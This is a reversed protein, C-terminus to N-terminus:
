SARRLHELRHPLGMVGDSGSVAAVFVAEMERGVRSVHFRDFSRGHHQVKGDLYRKLVYAIRDPRTDAILNGSERLIDATPGEAMTVSTIPKGAGMYDTLKGPFFPNFELGDIAKDFVGDINLLLDASRMLRLSDLYPVSGELRVHGRHLMAGHAEYDSGAYGGGYFLLEFRNAYQPYIELLRDVAKLVPAATRRVSYLTGVHMITYRDRKALESKPFFAPDFCHPVVVAKSAYREFPGTFMLRRQYDNNCIVVDAHELTRAETVIDEDHLPYSSMLKVYPNSAVVDGFYAVWPLRPALRKCELAVAHSPVENSHSVIFDYSERHEKFHRIAAAQFDDRTRRTRPHVHDTEVEVRNFTAAGVHRLVREDRQDRKVQAVDFHIDCEKLRKFFDLDASGLYPAFFWSVAFGKLRRAM